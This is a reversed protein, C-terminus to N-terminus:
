QLDLCVLRSTCSLTSSCLYQTNDLTLMSSPLLGVTETSKIENLFEALASDAAQRIELNGDSLM